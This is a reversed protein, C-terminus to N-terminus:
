QPSSSQEIISSSFFANLVTKCMQSTHLQVFSGIVQPFNLGGAELLEFSGPDLRALSDNEQYMYM